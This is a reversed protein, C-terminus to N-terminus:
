GAGVADPVCDCVCEGVCVCLYVTNGRVYPCSYPACLDAIFGM